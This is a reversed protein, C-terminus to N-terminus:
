VGSRQPSQLLAQRESRVIMLLGFALGIVAGPMAGVFLVLSMDTAVGAANIIAIGIIGILGGVGLGLVGFAVTVIAVRVLVLVPNPRRRAPLAASNM